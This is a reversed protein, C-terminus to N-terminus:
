KRLAGRGPPSFSVCLGAYLWHVACVCRHLRGAKFRETAFSVLRIIIEEFKTTGLGGVGAAWLANNVDRANVQVCVCATM